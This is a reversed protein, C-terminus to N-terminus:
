RRHIELLVPKRPTKPNYRTIFGIVEGPEIDSLLGLQKPTGVVKLGHHVDYAKDDIWVRRLKANYGDFQGIVEQLGDGSNQTTQQQGWQSSGSIPGEASGCLPYLALVALILVPLMSRFGANNAKM